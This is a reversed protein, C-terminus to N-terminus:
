IHLTNKYSSSCMAQKKKLFFHWILTELFDLILEVFPCYQSRCIHLTEVEYEKYELSWLFSLTQCIKINQFKVSNSSRLDPKTIKACGINYPLELQFKVCKYVEVNGMHLILKLNKFVKFHM